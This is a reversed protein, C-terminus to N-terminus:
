FLKRLKKVIIKSVARDAAKAPIFGKLGDFAKKADEYRITTKAGDVTLVGEVWALNRDPLAKRVSVIIDDPDVTRYENFVKGINAMCKDLNYLLENSKDVVTGQYLREARYKPHWEDKVEYNDELKLFEQDPQLGSLIKACADDFRGEDNWQEVGKEQAEKRIDPVAMSAKWADETLRKLKEDTPICADKEIELTAKEDWEGGQKPEWGGVTAEGYLLRAGPIFFKEDVWVKNGEDDTTQIRYLPKHHFYQQQDLVAYKKGVTFKLKRNKAENMHQPEPAYELCKGLMPKYGDTRAGYSVKLPNEVKEEYFRDVVKNDSM